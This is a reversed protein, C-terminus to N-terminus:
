HAGISLVAHSDRAVVEARGGASAITTSFRHELSAHVVILVDGADARRCLASLLRNSAERSLHTPFNCVTLASPPAALPDDDLLTRVQVGARFANMETLMLAVSDVETAVASGSGGALALGVALAGCGAGVDTIQALSGRQAAVDFLQRTGDDVAGSSFVGWDAALCVEFGGLRTAFSAPEPREHPAAALGSFVVGDGWRRRQLSWGLPALVRAVGGAFRRQKVYWEVQTQGSTALRGTVFWSLWRVFAHGFWPDVDVAVSRRDSSTGMAVVRHLPTAALGSEAAMRLDDLRLAVVHPQDGGVPPSGIAVALADISTIEDGPPPM